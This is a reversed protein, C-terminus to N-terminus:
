ALCSCKVAEWRIKKILANIEGIKCGPFGLVKGAATLDMEGIVPGAWGDIELRDQANSWGFLGLQPVAKRCLIRREIGRRARKRVVMVKASDTSFNLFIIAWGIVEILVREFFIM